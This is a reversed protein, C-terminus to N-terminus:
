SAVGVKKQLNSLLEYCNARLHIFDDVGAKKHDEVQDTPYGALLVVTDPRAEKIKKTLPPVVEPYTKDTSCIVVVPAESELAAEAAEEPTAFGDNTIVDFAAVQLFGTSFDARAKHQPIPGMNALFVKPRAGTKTEYAETARRLAEYPEAGRHTKIPEVGTEAPEDAHLTQYIEGLTAGGAAAHIAAKVIEKNPSAKSLKKLASDRWEEDIMERYEKLSATRESKFTDPDRRSSPELLKEAVNAYMNTGIFIDKRRAYADQRKNAVTTLQQQPFGAQLAKFMGGQREVERFLEWSKRAISDTLSEVYWSGGAPDVTNPLSCEERLITHTNRAIRRSFNDPLRIVEDFAGVQMSNCGGVVGSFAETTTRLMNVYPDYLTKNWTSTRAHIVLKQSTEDGGFEKIIKAWLLRGARLKAIEMFFNSGLSLGLRVRPAIEDIALGRSNLERVYEVATALTFALEQTASAGGNHYGHGQALITQLKPANAAAWTTLNAMDEYAGKLSHELSGEQALMSLPDAGICGTLMEASRAQKQLLALLLAGIPLGSAGAQVFLPVRELDIRDLAKGLDDLSSISVGGFGIDEADAQDVDLGFLTARDLALNIADQGNEMDDRLAQNFAEPKGYTIEQSVDWSKLRYSLPETGRLYPSFGPLFDKHPLRESDAQQYLPQIDIEEYTKTVLRKEFPAGKLTAEAAKRWEEYTPIHFDSFMSASQSGTQQNKGQSEESM